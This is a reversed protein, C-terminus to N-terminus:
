HLTNIVKYILKLKDTLSSIDLGTSAVEKGQPGDHHTEELQKHKEDLEKRKESAQLFLM